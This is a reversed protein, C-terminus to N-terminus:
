WVDYSAGVAVDTPDSCEPGPAVVPIKLQGSALLLFLVIFIRHRTAM